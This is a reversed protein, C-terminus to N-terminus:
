RDTVPIANCRKVSELSGAVTSLITTLRSLKFDFLESICIHHATAVVAQETGDVSM